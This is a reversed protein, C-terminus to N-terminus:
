EVQQDTSSTPASTVGYGGVASTVAPTGIGGFHNHTSTPPETQKYNNLTPALKAGYGSMAPAM